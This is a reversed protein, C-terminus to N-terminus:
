PTACATPRISTRSRRRSARAYSRCQRMERSNRPVQGQERGTMRGKWMRTIRKRYLIRVYYRLLNVLPLICAMRLLLEPSQKYVVLTRSGLEMIEQMLELPASVLLYNM